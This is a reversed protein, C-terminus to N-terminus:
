IGFLAKSQVFLGEVMRALEKNCIGYAPLSGGHLDFAKKLDVYAARTYNGKDMQMRIYDSLFTVAQSTCRGKRFGHDSPNLLSNDELYSYLQRHVLREIIKSFVPSITIPRYNDFLDSRGQKLKPSQQFSM